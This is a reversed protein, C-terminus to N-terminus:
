WPYKAFLDKQPEFHQAFPISMSYYIIVTKDWNREVECALASIKDGVVYVNKLTVQYEILRWIGLIM